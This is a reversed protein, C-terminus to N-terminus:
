NPGSGKDLFYQVEEFLQMRNRELMLLHTGEGIEVLRKDPGSPLRRYLELAGEIPTVQDWEGVIILTPATIM